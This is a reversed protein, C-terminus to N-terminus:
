IESQLKESHFINVKTRNVAVFYRLKICDHCYLNFYNFSIEITGQVETGIPGSKPFFNVSNLIGQM